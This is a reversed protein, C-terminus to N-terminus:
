LEEKLTEEDICDTLDYGYPICNLKCHHFTNDYFVCKRCELCGRQGCYKKLLLAAKLAAQTTIRKGKM